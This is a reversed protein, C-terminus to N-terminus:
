PLRAGTAHHDALGAGVGGLRGQSVQPSGAPQLLPRQGRHPHRRSRGGGIVSAVVGGNVRIETRARRAARARGCCSTRCRPSRRCRRAVSASRPSRRWITPEGSRARPTGSSPSGARGRRGHRRWRGPRSDAEQGGARRSHVLRTAGADVANEVLEKVVSAPREVVEGAAIQNALDSPLRNIKGM